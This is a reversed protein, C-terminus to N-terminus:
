FPPLVAENYVTRADPGSLTGHELLTNALANVAARRYQDDMFEQTHLWLWRLYTRQACEDRNVYRCLTTAREVDESGLYGRTHRGIHLKEATRGALYVMVERELKLRTRNNMGRGCTSPEFRGISGGLCCGLYGDGPVITVKRV